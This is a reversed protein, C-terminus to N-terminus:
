IGEVGSDYEGGGGLAGVGAASALGDLEEDGHLDAYGDYLLVNEECNDFVTGNDLVSAETNQSKDSPPTIPYGLAPDFTTSKIYQRFKGNQWAQAGVDFVDIIASRPANDSKKKSKSKRPPAPVPRAEHRSITHVKDKIMEEVLVRMDEIFTVEKHRRHHDPDGSWNAVRHSLDRFAEVSASGKEMIYEITVGNGSAIYVRKVWFNLQELYLDAAIWRGPLGWRNVFWAKELAMRLGPPLEYKWKVLVEVCERAYNHQGAGEFAFAWYKMVRLIRGADANAVGDEFECFILADRIFYISHALWDDGASQAEVATSSLTYREVIEKSLQRLEDLTPRWTKLDKWGDFRKLVIVCHLLRAILSHRVLAKAAAYNPKAVDWTRRLLGKHAALSTRDMTANGFHVRMLMHSAQLAFHWLASTEEVYELREMTDVDDVREAKAKRLNRATLWDGQMLRVHEAWQAETLTSREQMDKLVDIVGKKSGENVDFVGFPRADTREAPLPRDQPKADLFGQLMAHRGEWNKSGPTYRVLMEGVLCAFATKMHEGDEKTPRIHKFKAKVRKGRLALKARLNMADKDIGQLAIVASNTAHIMSARNTLREQFKRLYLNINDFIIYFLVGSTILEIALRIADQTIRTKMKEITTVSISLGINSLVNLVRSSTGSISFFLGLPVSLANTARNRVFALMMITAIIALTPNRSFGPFEKRWDEDSDSARGDLGGIAEDEPGEGVDTDSDSEDRARSKRARHINEAMRDEAETAALLDDSEGSAHRRARDRRYKNPATAFAYLYGYTFPAMHRLKAAVAVPDLLARVDAITLKKLRVKLSRDGIILDSETVAIKEMCPKVIREHLDQRCRPWNAHWLGYLDAPGFREKQGRKRRVALFTGAREKISKINSTFAFAFVKSLSLGLFVILSYILHLKDIESTPQQEPPLLTNWYTGDFKLVEAM